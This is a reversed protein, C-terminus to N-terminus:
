FAVYIAPLLDPGGALRLLLAAAVLVLWLLLLAWRKAAVIKWFTYRLFEPITRPPKSPEASM